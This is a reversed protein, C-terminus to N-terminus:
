GVVSSAMFHWSTGHDDSYFVASMSSADTGGPRVYVPMLLRGSRTQMGHGNVPTGLRWRAADYVQDTINNPASWTLGADKSQLIWVDMLGTMRSQVNTMNDHAWSRATMLFLTGTHQDVV